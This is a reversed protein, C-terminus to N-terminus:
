KESTRQVVSCANSDSDLCFDFSTSAQSDVPVGKLRAPEYRWGQLAKIAAAALVPSGKVPRLDYITGESSIRFHVEVNGSILHEKAIPPYVPNRRLLLTAPELSDAAANSPHESSLPKTRPTRLLSRVLPAQAAEIPNSSIDSAWSGDSCAVRVPGRFKRERNGKLCSEKNDQPIDHRGPSYAGSGSSPAAEPTGERGRKSQEASRRADFVISLTTELFVMQPQIQSRSIRKLTLADPTEPRM